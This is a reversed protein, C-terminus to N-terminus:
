RIVAFLSMVVAAAITATVFRSFIVPPIKSEIWNGLFFGAALAPLSGVAPELGSTTFQHYLALVLLSALCSALTVLAM